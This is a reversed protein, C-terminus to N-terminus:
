ASGEEREYIRDCKALRAILEDVSRFRFQRGTVVHSLRGAVRGRGTMSQPDLKLVYCRASPHSTRSSLIM